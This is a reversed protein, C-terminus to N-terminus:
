QKGAEKMALMVKDMTEKDYSSYKTLQDELEDQEAKTAEELAKEKIAYNRIDSYSAFNFYRQYSYELWEFPIVIYKEDFPTLRFRDLYWARV